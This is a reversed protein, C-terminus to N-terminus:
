LPPGGAVIRARRYLRDRIRIVPTVTEAVVETDFSDNRRWGDVDATEVVEDRFPQRTLDEFIGEAEGLRDRMQECILKLRRHEQQLDAAQLDEHMEAIAVQLCYILRAMEALTEDAAERTDRVTAQLDNLESACERVCTEVTDIVGGSDARAATERPSLWSVDGLLQKLEDNM